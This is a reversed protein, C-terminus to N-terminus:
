SHFRNRRQANQRAILILAAAGCPIAFLVMLGQERYATYTFAAAASPFLFRSWLAARTM